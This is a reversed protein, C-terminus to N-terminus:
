AVELQACSRFLGFAGAPFNSRRVQATGDLPCLRADAPIKGPDVTVLSVLALTLAGALIPM